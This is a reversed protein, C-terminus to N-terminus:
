PESSPTNMRAMRVFLAVAAPYFLPMGLRLALLRFFPIFAAEFLHIYGGHEASFRGFVRRFRGGEFLAQFM